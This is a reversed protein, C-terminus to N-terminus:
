NLFIYVRGLQHIDFISIFDKRPRTWRQLKVSIAVKLTPMFRGVATPDQVVTNAATILAISEDITNNAAMLSSASRELAEGIGGSSIAFNNGIENFKDIISMAFDTNSMGNMEDKFAAMTSILSETAGEVGEIEDGVVAYINAVEALGQADEFGYGLRAFDATSAVLGDITTGIEKSRKAANSLFKNYAADTENTVKKLETMASDILKVQEFMDRLGQFVWSFVEAASLYTAYEQFKAKLRDISSLGKLGLKEAEKDALKFQRILGNLTVRDVGEAKAKLDLMTGGFRKTAASNKVLWNDIESQFIKIDDDLKLRAADAKDARTEMRLLNNTKELARAYEKEAQILRERDAVEDGTGELAAEVQEYARHVQNVSDRLKTSASSLRNFKDDMQSIQNDYTGLEIDLKINKVTEAEKKFRKAAEIGEDFPKSIQQSIVNFRGSEDDLRKIVTVAEGLENIGKITIDFNEGQTKASVEKIVINMEELDKTVADISSSDFKMGSMVNRLSQITDSTNDAAVSVQKLDDEVNEFGVDSQATDSIKKNSLDDYANATQKVAQQKKEESQTVVNATEQAQQAELHRQEVTQKAREYAENALQNEKNCVEELVPIKSQLEAKEQSLEDIRSQFDETLRKKYDDVEEDSYDLGIDEMDKAFKRAEQDANNISHQCNQIIEDIERLRNQAASLDSEAKDIGTTDFTNKFEENIERKKNQADIIGQIREDESTDFVQGREYSIKELMQGQKQLEDTINAQLISEEKLDYIVTGYRTDAYSTGRTDVGEYGLSKMFQTSVSDSRDDMSSSSMFAKLQDLRSGFEKIDMITDGFVNKFQAFLESVDYSDSGQTFATLNSLFTHLKDAVENTTAKFLNDYKSIDVSTYPLKNYHGNNDLEHKTAGDVFYHGTGFYGTGRNSGYFRGNTEAKNLKSIIGAHYVVADATAKYAEQKKKENQVVASTAADSAKEIKDISGTNVSTVNSLGDGLANKAQTANQVLKEITDSLRDFSQTLGEISVGSSLGQLTTKIEGLDIVISDLQQSLGEINLNNGGGFIQKLKEFSDEMEKAGTQIDQADQILQDASKSFGSTVSSIDLGKLGAAQKFMDIYAKYAQMQSSLSGNGMRSAVSDKGYLFGEFFDGNNLKTGAVMRQLAEFENLSEKYTSNYYKVLDSVQQKLQPLTENRVKSGYVGQRAVSNSGGLNIGFNLSLDKGSLANLNANLSEFQNSAKDLASSIQNISSLLSKMGSKSDLTGLSTRIEKITTSVDKLSAEIKSTDLTLANKTGNSLSNLAERITNTLEKTEADVKLKIPNDELSQIKKKLEGFESEKLGVGLEIRYDNNEGM